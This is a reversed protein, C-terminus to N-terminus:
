PIEWVGNLIQVMALSDSELIINLYNNEWCYQLEEKITMAEAVLSTSEALKVGKAGVLDGEYNRVCFAAARPGPNGRFAGCQTGETGYFDYFLKPIAQFVLKQRANGQANWWMTMTQKVQIRPVIIGAANSFYDWVSIAM